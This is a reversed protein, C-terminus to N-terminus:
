KKLNMKVGRHWHQSQLILRGESRLLIVAPKTPIATDMMRKPQITPTSPQQWCCSRMCYTAPRSKRMPPVTFACICVDVCTCASLIQNWGTVTNIQHPSLASCMQTLMLYCILTKTYCSGATLHALCSNLWWDPTGKFWKQHRRSMCSCTADDGQACTHCSDVELQGAVWAVHVAERFVNAMAITPGHKTGPPAEAQCQQSAEEAGQSGRQACRSARRGM